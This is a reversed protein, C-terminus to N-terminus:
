VKTVDQRRRREKQLSKCCQGVLIWKIIHHITQLLLAHLGNGLSMQPPFSGIKVQDLLKIYILDSVSLCFMLLPQFHTIVSGKEAQLHQVLLGFLPWLAMYFIFIFVIKHNTLWKFWVYYSFITCFKIDFDLKQRNLNTANNKVSMRKPKPHCQRTFFFFTYFRTM